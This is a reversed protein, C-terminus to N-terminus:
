DQTERVARSNLQITPGVAISTALDLGGQGDDDWTETISKVGQLATSGDLAPAEAYYDYWPLGAAAYARATVPQSPMAEGTIATWDASNAITIFCRGGHEQDWDDLDFLSMPLMAM